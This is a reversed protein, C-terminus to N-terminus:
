QEDSQPDFPCDTDEEISVCSDGNIYDGIGNDTMRSRALRIAKSFLLSDLNPDSDDNEVDMIIRTMISFEVLFAKKM